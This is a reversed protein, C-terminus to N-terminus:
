LETTGGSMPPRVGTAWWQDFSHPSREILKAIAERPSRTFVVGWPSAGEWYNASNYPTGTVAVLPASPSAGITDGRQVTIAATTQAAM